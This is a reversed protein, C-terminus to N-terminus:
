AEGAARTEAAAIHDVLDGVRLEVLEEIQRDSLWGALDIQQGYHDQLREALEVLEVSELELDRSFTLGPTIEMEAIWEEGVIDRLLSAVVGLVDQAEPDVVSM